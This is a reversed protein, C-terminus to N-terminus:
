AEFADRRGSNEVVWLELSREQIVGWESDSLPPTRWCLDNPREECRLASKHVLGSASDEDGIRGGRRTAVQWAIDDSGSWIESGRKRRESCPM